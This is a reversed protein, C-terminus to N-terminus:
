SARNAFPAAPAPDDDELVEAVVDYDRSDVVRVKVIQGRQLPRESSLICQGDIEPAQSWLRGVLVLESEPHRGEVIAEHVSGRLARLRRRSIARQQRMIASLRRRAVAAPVKNRMAHAPAGPEDSYAFAGLRDFGIRDLLRALAAGDRANEGPFGVLVTTRLVLDPVRSRLATLRRQLAAGGSGRRMRRLVADSAHQIPVDLYPLLRQGRALTDLLERGVGQPYAYLCRIWRLGTSADLATLLEPLARRPRLDRGWSTLDQAVLTLEVVGAAALAKAEAVLDALPRSRQPGRLAPIICFACRRDCGEAIKLYASGGADSLDRMVGCDTAAMPSPVPADAAAVDIHPRAQATRRRLLQQIVDAVTHFTTTGLLADIEPIATALEAASRQALCGTVVLARCRGRQKHQALEVITTISEATAAAIFGCSHVVIADASAADAVPTLGRDRALAAMQEAEVRNKPCGLAVFHVRNM